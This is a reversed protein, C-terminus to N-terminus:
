LGGTLSRVALFVYHAVLAGTVGWIVGLGDSTIQKGMLVPDVGKKADKKAPARALAARLRQAGAVPEATAVEAAGAGAAGTAAMEAAAVEAGTAAVEAATAATAAVEAATAATAAVEAAAAAEVAAATGVAAAPAAAFPWTFLGVLRGGAWALGSGVWQVANGLPALRSSLFPLWPVVAAQAYNFAVVGFIAGAGIALAQRGELHGTGASQTTTATTATATRHGTQAMANEAGPGVILGVMLVFVALITGKSRIPTTM